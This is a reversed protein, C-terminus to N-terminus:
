TEYKKPVHKALLTRPAAHLRTYSCAPRIFLIMKSLCSTWTLSDWPSSAHAFGFDCNSHRDNGPPDTATFPPM